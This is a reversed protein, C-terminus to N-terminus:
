YTFGARLMLTDGLSQEHPMSAYQLKRSFVYGLEVRSTLGGIIRRELGMYIRWDTIDLEDNTGNTRQVAWIGGGFEGAVYFWLEDRGPISTAPLRWSMKPAPFILEYDIDDNPKYILGAIPLIKTNLRGVYAAGLVWKWAPTWEYVVAGSGTLRFADGSDWSHDDAYEGFTIDVNVLWNQGLKRFHRLEIAADSVRPPVDPSNPGDLYHLNYFPTIVLPSERTFFPVGFVVDLELDTMGLNDNGLRPLYAATFDVKQFVGNRTGPPLTSSDDTQPSGQGYYPDAPSQEEARCVPGAHGAPGHRRHFPLGALTRRNAHRRVAAGAVAAVRGDATGRQVVGRSDASLASARALGRGGWEPSPMTTTPYPSQGRVTSAVLVLAFGVAAASSAAGLRSLRLRIPARYMSQAESISEPVSCSRTTRISRAQRCPRKIFYRATLYTASKSTAAFRPKRTSSSVVTRASTTTISAPSAAQQQVTWSGGGYEGAVYWFINSNGWDFWHKRVKPNPFVLYADWEPTPRWYVGGAPLIKVNLRDLYVAGFLIDLTPTLSISALGRGLFRVSDSSVHNFDSYVGTRFGLEAGLWPSWRPYYAFDLYADYIQSPLDQPPPPGNFWNFAFGPTILLPTEVNYFMPVAFSSSLELRNLQLDNPNSPKGYLYTYEASLEQLFRQTKTWYSEEGPFAPTGPQWSYPLGNPYLPGPQQPFDTPPPTVAPASTYPVSAPPPGLPSGSAYPDFSPPPSVTRPRRCQM